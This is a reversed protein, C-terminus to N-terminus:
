IFFKSNWFWRSSGRTGNAGVFCGLTVTASDCPWPPFHAPLQQVVTRAYGKRFVAVTGQEAALTTRLKHKSFRRQGCSGPRCFFFTLRAACGHLYVHGSLMPTSAACLQWRLAAFCVARLMDRLLVRPWFLRFCALANSPVMETLPGSPKGIVELYVARFEAKSLAGLSASTHAASTPTPRAAVPTPVTPSPPAPM